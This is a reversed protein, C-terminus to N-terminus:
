IYVDLCELQSPMIKLTRQGAVFVENIGSVNSIEHAM